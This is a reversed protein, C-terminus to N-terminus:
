VHIRGGPFQKRSLVGFPAFSRGSEERISRHVAIERRFGRSSNSKNRLLLNSGTECRSQKTM